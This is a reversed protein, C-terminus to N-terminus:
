VTHTAGKIEGTCHPCRTAGAKVEELCHPCVQAPSDTSEKKGKMFKNLAKVLLFVIVAIILFNIIASIFSGFDIGNETGAVPISLGSVETGSGSILKIFPNVIDNVLSNVIAMFAGGIIVGIAMDMVNGRAIFDKFEGFLKKM